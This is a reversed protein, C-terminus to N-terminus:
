YQILTELSSVLEDLAKTAQIANVGLRKELAAILELAAQAQTDGFSSATAVIYQRLKVLSVTVAAVQSQSELRERSRRLLELSLYIPEHVRRNAARLANELHRYVEELHKDAKLSNAALQNHLQTLSALAKGRHGGFGHKAEMIHKHAAKVGKMTKEVLEKYGKGGKHNRLAKQHSMSQHIPEHRRSKASGGGGGSKKADAGVADASVSVVGVVTLVVSMVLTHLRTLM